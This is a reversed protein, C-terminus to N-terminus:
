RNYYNKIFYYVLISLMIIGILIYYYYVCIMKYKCINYIDVILKQINSNINYFDNYVYNYLNKNNNFAQQMEPINYSLNASNFLISDYNLNLIPNIRPKFRLKMLNYTSFFEKADQLLNNDIYYKIISFTFFATKIKDKYLIGKNDKMSKFTEINVNNDKSYVENIQLTIYSYLKKQNFLFKIDNCKGHVFYDDFKDKKELYNCIRMDNIFQMNINNYISQILSNTRRSLLNLYNFNLIFYIIGIIIIIAIAPIFLNFETYLEKLNLIFHFYYTIAIIIISVIIFKIFHIDVSFNDTFYIINEIQRFEPIDNLRLQNKIFTSIYANTAYHNKGYLDYIIWLCCIIFIFLLLYYYLKYIWTCKFVSLSTADNGVTLAHESSKTNIATIINTFFNYKEKFYKNIIIDVLPKINYYLDQLKM